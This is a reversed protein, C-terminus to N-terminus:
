DLVFYCSHSHFFLMVTAVDWHWVLAEEAQNHLTTGFIISTWSIVAKNCVKYFTDKAAILDSCKAYVYSVKRLVQASFSVGGLDIVVVVTLVDCVWDLFEAEAMEDFVKSADESYVIFNGIYEELEVYCCKWLCLSLM